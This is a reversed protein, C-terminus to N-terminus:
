RGFIGPKWSQFGLKGYKNWKGSNRKGEEINKFVYAAFANEEGGESSFGIM